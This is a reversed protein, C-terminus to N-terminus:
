GTDTGRGFAARPGPAKLGQGPGQPDDPSPGKAELTAWLSLTLHNWNIKVHTYCGGTEERQEEGGNQELTSGVQREECADLHKQSKEAAPGYPEKSDSVWGGM